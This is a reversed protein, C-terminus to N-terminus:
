CGGNGYSIVASSVFIAYEHLSPDKAWLQMDAQRVPETVFLLRQVYLKALAPLTRFVGLCSLPQEYISKLVALSQKSLFTYLDFVNLVAEEDIISM